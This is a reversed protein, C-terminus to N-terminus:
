KDNNESHKTSNLDQSFDVGVDALYSKLTWNRDEETPPQPMDEETDDDQKSKEATVEKRSSEAFM